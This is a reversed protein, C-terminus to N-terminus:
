DSDVSTGLASEKKRERWNLMNDVFLFQHAVGAWEGFRARFFEASAEYKKHTLDTTSWEPFYLRTLAQWIHTDIPVSEGFDLAFLLICDALKPGVGPLGLLRERVAGFEQQKLSQLSAEGGWDAIMAAAKPISAGRYGFGKARLETESVSAIVEAEPFAYGVETPVGYGALTGVMTKIRAIHNNSTCLFSMLTETASFPRMMRLGNLSGLHDQLEPGREIIGGYMAAHDVDMRFLSRFASEDVNSRVRFCTDTSSIDFWRPGDQVRWIEGVQSWRFM